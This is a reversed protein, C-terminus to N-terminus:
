LWSIKRAMKKWWKVLILKNEEDTASLNEELEHGQYALIPYIDNDLCDQVQGKLRDFFDNDPNQENMRIRVNTFGAAAFDQPVSSTYSEMYKGFESRTVDFGKGLDAAYDAPSIPSPAPTLALLSAM